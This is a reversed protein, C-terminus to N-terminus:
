KSEILTPNLFIVADGGAARQGRIGDCHRPAVM